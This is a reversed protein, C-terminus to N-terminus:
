IKFRKLNPLDKKEMIWLHRFNANNVVDNSAPFIEVAYVDEGIVTNKIKQLEPWTPNFPKRDKRRIAIHNGLKITVLDEIDIM